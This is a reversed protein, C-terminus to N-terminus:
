ISVPTEAKTIAADIRLVADNGQLLRTLRCTDWSAGALKLAAVVDSARVLPETHALVMNVVVGDVRLERLAVSVDITKNGTGSRRSVLTVEGAALATVAAALGVPNSFEARWLSANLEKATAGRETRTVACIQVGLPAVANLAACLEDDSQEASLAIELYEALSADGTPAV